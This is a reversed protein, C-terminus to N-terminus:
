LSRYVAPHGLRRRRHAASDVRWPHRCPWRPWTSPTPLAGNARCRPLLGRDRSVGACLLRAIFRRLLHPRSPSPSALVTPEAIRLCVPVGPM